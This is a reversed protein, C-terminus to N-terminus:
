FRQMLTPDSTFPSAPLDAANYLNAQPANRWGYRVYKPSKVADTKVVVSNNDIAADAPVYKHDEGAIEFGLLQGGKANLGDGHDFYVRVSGAVPAAQRFVPGSYELQEGYQIHRAALALRHGVTQKDAPHVNEPNGVDITVAMGTRATSLTEFQAERINAWTESSNSTFSSIQTFLFPTNGEQWQRRWDAIMTSFVRHYYPNREASSDTEGQYWIVGTINYPTMPAVMGNYLGAPAYSNPDPHWDHHPKPEGAKAAAEDEAKEAALMASVDAQHAVMHSWATFVPTLSPDAGLADMSVWAGVPTGGWTSDVLGITVNEQAALERGFFYAVASFDKATEPTCTTWAVKGEFDNLPYPSGKHPIYLLRLKPQNANRIEEEDNKVRTDPGFGKLPMEMNSQGSAFWVDGVMIDNLTTGNVKLTYPGGAPQPKLYTSWHGLRDGTAAQTEGNFDVSIQEGPDSWGWIHIPQNRQLVAHDSFAKPLRVAALGPVAAAMVLCCTTFHKM